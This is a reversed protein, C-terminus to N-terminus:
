VTQGYMSEMKPHTLHGEKHMMELQWKADDFPHVIKGVGGGRRCCMAHSVLPLFILGSQEMRVKHLNRQNVRKSRYVVSSTLDGLGWFTM